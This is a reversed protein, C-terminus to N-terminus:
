NRPSVETTVSLKIEKKVVYKHLVLDIKIVHDINSFNVSSVNSIISQGGENYIRGGSYYFRRPIDNIDNYDISNASYGTAPSSVSQSAALGTNAPRGHVIREIAINASRSLENLALDESWIQDIMVYLTIAATIAIGFIISGLLIEPM